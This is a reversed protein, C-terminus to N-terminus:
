QCEFSACGRGGLRAGCHSTYKSVVLCEYTPPLVSRYRFIRRRLSAHDMEYSHCRSRLSLAHGEGRIVCTHRNLIIGRRYRWERLPSLNYRQSKLISIHVSTTIGSLSITASWAPGIFSTKLLCPARSGYEPERAYANM